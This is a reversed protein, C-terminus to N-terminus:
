SGNNFSISTSYKLLISIQGKQDNCASLEDVMCVFIDVTEAINPLSNLKAQAQTLKVFVDNSQSSSSNSLTQAFSVSQTSSSQSSTTAPAQQHTGLRPFHSLSSLSAPSHHIASTVSKKPRAKLKELHQKYSPCGRHNSSHPGGCNCCKPDGERTTRPCSGIDHSESCKVCRPPLGCGFSSHGWEQCKYCQTPKKNSRRLVDWKVVIGDVYKHSHNLVNVNVSKDFHVLYLIYSDKRIFDTVKIAPVASAKLTALTEECTAHYFGKLLFYNPKDVPDTFTHYGIQESQLKAILKKKDDVSHCLVQTSSSGRVKFL